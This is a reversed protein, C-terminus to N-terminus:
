ARSTTRSPWSSPVSTTSTPARRRSRRPSSAVQRGPQDPVAGRRRTSYYPGMNIDRINESFYCERAVGNAILNIGQKAYYKQNVACDILSTNGVLGLVKDSEVLKTALSAVQQPNTQETEVQYEVPRGNIGGNDNVCDFYAKAMDSIDTFDTGPQKTVIAGLKIPSM